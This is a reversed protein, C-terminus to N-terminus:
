SSTELLQHVRLFDMLLGLAILGQDAEPPNGALNFTPKQSKLFTDIISGV